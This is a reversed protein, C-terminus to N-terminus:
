SRLGKIQSKESKSFRRCEFVWKVPTRMEFEERHEDSFSCDNRRVTVSGRRQVFCRSDEDDGKTLRVRPM